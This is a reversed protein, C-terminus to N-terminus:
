PQDRGILGAGLNDLALDVYDRRFQMAVGDFRCAARVQEIIFGPQYNALPIWPRDRLEAMILDLDAV